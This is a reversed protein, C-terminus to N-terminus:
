ILANQGIVQRNCFSELGNFFLSNTTFAKIYLYIHIHIKANLLTRYLVAKNNNSGLTKVMIM